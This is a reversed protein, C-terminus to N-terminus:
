NGHKDGRTKAGFVSQCCSFPAVHHNAVTCRNDIYNVCNKCRIIDSQVSSLESVMDHLEAYVNWNDPSGIPHLIDDLYDLIEQVEM